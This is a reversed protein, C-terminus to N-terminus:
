EGFGRTEDYQVGVHGVDEGNMETVMGAQAAIEGCERCRFYVDRETRKMDSLPVKAFFDKPIEYQAQCNGCVLYRLAVKEEVYEDEGPRCSRSLLLLLLLGLLALFFMLRKSM